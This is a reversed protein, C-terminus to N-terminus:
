MEIPSAFVQTICTICYTINHGVHMKLAGLSFNNHEETRKNVKIVTSQERRREWCFMDVDKEQVCQCPGEQGLVMNPLTCINKILINHITHSHDYM